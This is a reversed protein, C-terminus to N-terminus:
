DQKKSDDNNDGLDPLKMDMIINKFVEPTDIAPLKSHEQKLDFTKWNESSIFIPVNGVLSLILGSIFNIEIEYEVGDETYQRLLSYVFEKDINYIYLEKYHIHFLDLNDLWDYYVQLEQLQIGQILSVVLNSVGASVILFLQKKRQEDIIILFFNKSTPEYVIKDFFLQMNDSM